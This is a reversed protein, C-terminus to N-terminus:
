KYSDDEGYPDDKDFRKLPPEPAIKQEDAIAKDIEDIVTQVEIFTTRMNPTKGPDDPRSLGDALDRRAKVMQERAKQLVKVHDSM